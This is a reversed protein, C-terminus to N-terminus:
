SSHYKAANWNGNTWKWDTKGRAIIWFRSINHKCTKSPNWIRHFASKNKGLSQSYIWNCIRINEGTKWGTSPWIWWNREKKESFFLKEFIKMSWRTLNVFLFVEAARQISQTLTDLLDKNMEISDEIQMEATIWESFETDNICCWGPLIFNSNWINIARQELCTLFNFYELCFTENFQKYRIVDFDPDMSSRFVSTRVSCNINHPCHSCNM